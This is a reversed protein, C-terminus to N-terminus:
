TRIGSCGVSGVSSTPSIQTPTSTEKEQRQDQDTTTGTTNDQHPATEPDIQTTIGRQPHPDPAIITRIETTICIETIILIETMQTHTDHALNVNVVIRTTPDAITTTNMEATQNDTPKKKENDTTETIKTTM